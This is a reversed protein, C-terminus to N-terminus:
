IGGPVPHTEVFAAKDGNHLELVKRVSFTGEIIAQERM